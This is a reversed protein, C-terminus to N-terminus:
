SWLSSFINKGPKLKGRVWKETTQEWNNQVTFDPLCNVKAESLCIVKEDCNILDAICSWLDSHSFKILVSLTIKSFVSQYETIVILYAQKQLSACWLKGPCELIFFPFLCILPLIAQVAVSRKRFDRESSWRGYYCFWFLFASCCSSYNKPLISLPM